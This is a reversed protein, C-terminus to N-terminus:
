LLMSGDAKEGMAGRLIDRVRDRYSAQGPYDYSWRHWKPRRHGIKFKLGIMLTDYSDKDVKRVHQDALIYWHYGTNPAAGSGKPAPKKRYKQSRFEFVWRDPAVKTEEWRGGEYNWCHGGGVPMGSYIDGRHRKLDDYTM